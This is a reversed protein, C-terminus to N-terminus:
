LLGRLFAAFGEPARADLRASTHVAPSSSWSIRAGSREFARVLHLDEHAALPPFGGARLYAEASFGLNAGHVHRHDDHQHYHAHYRAQADLHIADWQAIRVTGCVVDAGLALQAVLWNTGAISDADTCAIWRAGEDLLLHVGAARAQGVNRADIALTAIGAAEAIAASGDSCADLVALVRVPEGGLGPHAAAALVSEICAGLLREENHVPIVVGIM